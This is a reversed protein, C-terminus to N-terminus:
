KDLNLRWRTENDERMYNKMLVVMTNPSTGWKWIPSITEMYKANKFREEITVKFRKVEM